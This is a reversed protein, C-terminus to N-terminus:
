LLRISDVIEDVATIMNRPDNGYVSYYVRLEKGDELVYRYTYDRDGALRLYGIGVETDTEYIKQYKQGDISNEKGNVLTYPAPEGEPDAFNDHILISFLVPSDTGFGEIDKVEMTGEPQTTGMIYFADSDMPRLVEGWSNPLRVSFASNGSTVEISQETQNDNVYTKGAAACQEPFSEMILNGAAVCDAFSNITRPEVTDISTTREVKNEIMTTYMVGFAFALLALVAMIIVPKRLGNVTLAM